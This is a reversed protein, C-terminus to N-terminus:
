RKIFDPFKLSFELFVSLAFSRDVGFAKALWTYADDEAETSRLSVVRDRKSFTIQIPKHCEPCLQLQEKTEQDKEEVLKKREIDTGEIRIRQERIIKQVEVKTLVAHSIVFDSNTIDAREDMRAKVAKITAVKIRNDKESVIPASAWPNLDSIEPYEDYLDIMNELILYTQPSRECSAKAKEFFERDKWRNCKTM